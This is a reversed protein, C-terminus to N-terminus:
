PWGLLEDSVVCVKREGIRIPKTMLTEESNPEDRDAWVCTYKPWTVIEHVSALVLIARGRRECRM